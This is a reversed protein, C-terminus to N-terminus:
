QLDSSIRPFVPDSFKLIYNWVLPTVYSAVVIDVTYHNRSVIIMLILTITLAWFILKFRKDVSYHHVVLAMNIAILTHSSFILDGCGKYLDLRTLMEITNKPPNYDISDPLCHAAPSPLLTSVFTIIRLLTCVSTSLGFRFLMACVFYINENQENNPHFCAFFPTFMFLVFLLILITMVLDANLWEFQMEPFIYFGIDPLRPRRQHMYYIYNTAFNHLIPFTIAMMLLCFWVKEFMKIERKIQDVLFETLSLNKRSRIISDISVNSKKIIM